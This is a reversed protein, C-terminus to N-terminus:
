PAIAKVRSRINRKMKDFPIKSYLLNLQLTINALKDSINSAVTQEIRKRVTSNFLAISSNYLFDHKSKSIKIRLKSIKVKVSGGSFLPANPDVTNVDLAIRIRAGKGGLVIKALGDDTIRPFKKRTFSFKIDSMRARIGELHLIVRGQTYTDSERETNIDGEVRSKMSKRKGEAGIAAKESLVTGAYKQLRSKIDARWKFDSRFKVYDPLIDYGSFVVNSVTWDYVDDTGSMSPLPLYKLQEFIIPSVISGVNKLVNHDLHRRGKSDIYFFDQALRQTALSFRRLYQDSKIQKWIEKIESVMFRWTEDTTYKNYLSRSRLVLLAGTKEFEKSKMTEPDNLSKEFFIRMDRFLSNLEKDNRIKSIFKKSASIFPDLTKDHMFREILIKGDHLAKSTSRDAAVGHQVRRATRGASYLDNKLASLFIFIDQITKKYEPDRNLTTVFGSFLTRFRQKEEETLKTESKLFSTLAVKFNKTTEKLGQVLPKERRITQKLPYSLKSEGGKSELSRDVIDLFELLMERLDQSALILSVLNFSAKSSKLLMNKETKLQSAMNEGSYIRQTNRVSSSMNILFSQFAQDQNRREILDKLSEVFVETDNMLNSTKRDMDYTARSKMIGKQTRNLVNLIQKNTPPIGQSLQQYVTLLSNVSKISADKKKQERFTTASQPGSKATSIEPTLNISKTAM